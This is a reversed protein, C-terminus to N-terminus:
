NLVYERWEEEFEVAATFRETVTFRYGFWKNYKDSAMTAVRYWSDVAKDPDYNKAHRKLSNAVVKMYEYVDSENPAFLVLEESEDNPAYVMNKTRKM